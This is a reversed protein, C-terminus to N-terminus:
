GLTASDMLGSFVAVRVGRERLERLLREPQPWGALGGAGVPARGRGAAVAALAAVTGAAVSPHDMVGLIITEVAGDLQGRVEVRLAGPGGDVHPPRMMPLRSTLRDRRTASMRASIRQVEPFVRQLLIPTPLAGRYCDRAGFPEPFWALDRGSGGRRLVWGGDIWDCGDSRLARHHQRACAPGGTGASYVSIVDVTDLRDAAYRALLCSLGPAFGAGVVVSCDAEAATGDLALLEAVEDPDDSISVVHRGADVMSAALEAHTGAPSAIVVVDVPTAPDPPATTVRCKTAVARIAAGVRGLREVDPDHLALATVPSQTLQRAIHSGTTGLGVLAVRM